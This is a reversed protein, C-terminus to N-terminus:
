KIYYDIISLILYLLLIIPVAQIKFLGILIIALAILIFRIRNESWKLNKFKLAIFPLNSIMLLGMVISIVIIGYKSNILEGYFKNLTTTTGYTQSILGFALWLLANAPTPLGKFGLTQSTDINFKALRYASFGIMLFPIFEIQFLDIGVDFGGLLDVAIFAPAVGFTILDALSDLEAGFPGSVKLLRAIMGDFFDFVAGGLIFIASLVMEGQVVLFIAAVGCMLNALTFLNPIQSKFNM